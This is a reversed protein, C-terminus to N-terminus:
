LYLGDAFDGHVLINCMKELKCSIFKVIDFQNKKVPISYNTEM